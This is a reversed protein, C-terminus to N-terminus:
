YPVECHGKLMASIEFPPQSAVASPDPRYIVAGFYYIWHGYGTSCRYLANNTGPLFVYSDLQASGPGYMGLSAYCANSHPPGTSGFQLDYHMRGHCHVSFLSLGPVDIVQADWFTDATAGDPSDGVNVQFQRGTGYGNTFGAGFTVAVAAVLVGLVAVARFWWSSEGSSTKREM